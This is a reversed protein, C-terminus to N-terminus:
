GPCKGLRYTIPGRSVLLNKSAGVMPGTRARSRFFDFSVFRRVFGHKEASLRANLLVCSFM